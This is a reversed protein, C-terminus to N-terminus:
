SLLYHIPTNLYSVHIIRIARKQLIFLPELSSKYTNGWVEECYTFYPLVLLCFLTRRSSNNLVHRAKAM